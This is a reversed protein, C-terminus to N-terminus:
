FKGFDSDLSLGGSLVLKDDGQAGPAAHCSTCGGTWFMREGRQADAEALSSFASQPLPNAASLFWLAAGVVVAGLVVITLLIRM